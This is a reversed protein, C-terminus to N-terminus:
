NKMEHITKSLTYIDTSTLNKQLLSTNKQLTKQSVPLTSSLIFQKQINCALFIAACALGIKNKSVYNINKIATTVLSSALQSIQKNIELQNIIFKIERLVDSIFEDNDLDRAIKGSVLNIQIACEYCYRRSTSTAIVDNENFEQICKACKAIGNKKLRNLHWSTM